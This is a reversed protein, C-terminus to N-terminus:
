LAELTPTQYFALLFFALIAKKYSALIDFFYDVIPPMKQRGNKIIGRL